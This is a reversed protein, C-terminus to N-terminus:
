RWRTRSQSRRRKALGEAVPGRDCEAGRDGAAQRRHRRARYCEAGGDATGRRSGAGRDPEARRHAGFAVASNCMGAARSPFVIVM